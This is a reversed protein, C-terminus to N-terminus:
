YIRFGLTLAFKPAIGRYEYDFIDYTNYINESSPINISYSENNESLRFGGGLSVDAFLNRTLVARCGFLIGGANASIDRTVTYERSTSLVPDYYYSQFKKEIGNFQYYPAVYPQWRAGGYKSDMKDFSPHVLYFRFQVEATFGTLSENNNDKLIVGPAIFITKDKGIGTEYSAVFANRFFHIPSIGMFGPKVSQTYGTATWVSLFLVLIKKM